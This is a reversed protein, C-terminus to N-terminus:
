SVAMGAPEDRRAPRLAARARSSIPAAANGDNRYHWAASVGAIPWAMSEMYAIPLLCPASRHRQVHVDVVDRPRAGLVEGGRMVGVQLDLMLMADLAEFIPEILFLALDETQEIRGTGLGGVGNVALSMAQEGFLDDLNVRRNGFPQEAVPFDVLGAGNEKGALATLTVGAHAADHEGVDDPRGFHGEAQPIRSREFQEDKM